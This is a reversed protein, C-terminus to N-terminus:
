ASGGPMVMAPDILRADPLVARLSPLCTAFIKDARKASCDGCVPGVLGHRPDDRAAFIAVFAAPSGRLPDGCCFCDTDPRRELWGVIMLLGLGSVRDGNLAKEITAAAESRRVLVADFVKDGGALFANVGRDWERRSHAAPRRLKASTRRRESRNM